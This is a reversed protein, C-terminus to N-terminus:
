TQRVVVNWPNASDNAFGRPLRSEDRHSTENSINDGTDNCM